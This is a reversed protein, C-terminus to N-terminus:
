AALQAADAKADPAAVVTAAAAGGPGKLLEDVAGGIFAPANAPVLPASGRKGIEAQGRTMTLTIAVRRAEAGDHHRFAGSVLVPLPRPEVAAAGHLALELAIARAEALEVVLTRPRALLRQEIILAYAQKLPDFEFSLDDNMFPSVAYVEDVGERWKTIAADILRRAADGGGSAAAPDLSVNCLRLGRSTESVVLQVVPRDENGNACRLLVLLDAKLLQGLAQRRPGADSGFLQQLEQEKVIQQIADREVTRLGGGQTLEAELLLAPARQEVDGGPDILIACVPQRPGAPSTAPAAAAMRLAICLAVVVAAVAALAGHALAIRLAMATRRVFRM